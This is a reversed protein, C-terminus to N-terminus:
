EIVYNNHYCFSDWYMGADATATLMGLRSLQSQTACSLSRERFPFDLDFAEDEDLLGSTTPLYVCDENDGGIGRSAEDVPAVIFRSDSKMGTQHAAEAFGSYKLM